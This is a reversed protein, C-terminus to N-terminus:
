YGAARDVQWLLPEGAEHRRINTVINIAGQRPDLRGAVHPTVICNPLTWAMHGEPLPEVDFVDVVANAVHGSELAAKLAAFDCQAGRGAHVLGAGPKMAAFFSADMLGRTAETLPLLCVVVDSIALLETLGEPGSLCTVGEVTKQSRSWGAVKFGLPRLLEASLQGIEGLGLIGVTTDAAMAPTRAQWDGAQQQAVYRPLDRACAFCSMVIYEAVRRLNSPDVMRILPVHAPLHAFQDVGASVAFLVELNRYVSLDAPPQWSFMYRVSDPDTVETEIPVHPLEAAFIERFMAERQADTSQFWFVM